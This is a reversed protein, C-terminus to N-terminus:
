AITALSAAIRRYTRSAPLLFLERPEFKLRKAPTLSASRLAPSRSGTASIGLTALSRLCAQRSDLRAALPRAFHTPRGDCAPPPHPAHTHRRKCGWCLFDAMLSRVYPETVRCTRCRATKMATLM